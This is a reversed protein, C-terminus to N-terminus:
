QLQDPPCWFCLCTGCLSDDCPACCGSCFPDVYFESGDVEVLIEDPGFAVDDPDVALTERDDDFRLYLDGGAPADMEAALGPTAGTAALLGTTGIGKLVTRRRM